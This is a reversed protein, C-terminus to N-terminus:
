SRWTQRETRGCAVVRSMISPNENFKTHTYKELIQRSFEFKMVIQCFYPVQVHLRINM